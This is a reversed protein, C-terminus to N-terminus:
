TKTAASYSEKSTNLFKVIVQWNNKPEFDPMLKRLVEIQGPNYLM